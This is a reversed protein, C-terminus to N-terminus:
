ETRQWELTPFTTTFAPLEMTRAKQEFQEKTLPGVVGKTRDRLTATLMRDVIFYSTVAHDFHIQDSYIPHQKAVIYRNNAGVAFVTAGVVYDFAFRKDKKDLSLSMQAQTDIATLM